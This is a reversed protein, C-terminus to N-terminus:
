NKLEVLYRITMQDERYFIVEDNRLRTSGYPMGAKAHLCDAGPCAKQLTAYDFSSACPPVTSPKYAKGYATEFLALFGFHSSGGAWYSGELSTYGVSKRAKPAFYTGLGFMKGNTVVNTPRLRLGTKLIGWWNETRSGHWFLKRSRKTMKKEKIFAQFAKETERNTVKWAKYYLGACDGLEKKILEVDTLTVPQIELGYADLITEDTTNTSDSVPQPRAHIAQSSMVDLLHQERAIIKSRASPNDDHLLYDQVQAMKRPLISFLKLLRDNFDSLNVTNILLDIVQQAERIMADSVATSDIKYNSRITDRAKSQLYAILAAIDPDSIPAYDSNNSAVEVKARLRTVDKYGKRMKEDYKKSWQSMPYDTHQAMAGIRGYSVEFRDESVQRMHYFKNNNNATICQLYAEQM